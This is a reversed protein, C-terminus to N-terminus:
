GASAIRVPCFVGGAGDNGAQGPIEIGTKAFLLHGILDPMVRLGM